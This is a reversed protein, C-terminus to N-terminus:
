RCITSRASMSSTYACQIIASCEADQQRQRQASLFERSGEFSILNSHWRINRALCEQTLEKLAREGAFGLLGISVGSWPQFNREEYGWQLTCEIALWTFCLALWLGFGFSVKWCTGRAELLSVTIVVVVTLLAGVSVFLTRNLSYGLSQAYMINTVGLIIAYYLKVWFDFGSVVLLLAPINSCLIMLAMLFMVSCIWTIELILYWTVEHLDPRMSVFAIWPFTVVCLVFVTWKSFLFGILHDVMKSESLISHLVTDSRDLHFVDEKLKARDYIRDWITPHHEGQVTQELTDLTTQSKIPTIEAFNVIAKLQEATLLEEDEYKQTIRMYESLIKDIGGLAAVIENTREALNRDTLIESFSNYSSSSM